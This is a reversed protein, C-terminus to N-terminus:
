EITITRPRVAEVKPISISLLGNEYRAAIKDAQVGDPLTVSRTAKQERRTEGEGATSRHTVTLVSKELEVDLDERRAGPIEFRVLYDRDNEFLDVRLTNTMEPWTDEQFFQSLRHLPSLSGDLWRDLENFVQFPQYDYKILKM